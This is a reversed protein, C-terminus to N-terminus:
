MRTHVGLIGRYQEYGGFDTEHHEGLWAALHDSNWWFHMAGGWYVTTEGVRTRITLQLKATKWLRAPTVHLVVAPRFTNGWTNLGLYLGLVKILKNNM